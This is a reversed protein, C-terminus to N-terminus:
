ALLKLTEECLTRLEAETAAQAEELTPASGSSINEGVCDLYWGFSDEDDITGRYTHGSFPPIKARTQHTFVPEWQLKTM